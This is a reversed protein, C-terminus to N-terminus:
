RAKPPVVAVARGPTLYHAGSTIVEQVGLLDEAAVVFSSDLLRLVRLERPQARAEGDLTYITVRQGEGEVLADMPLQYYPPQRSPYLKVRGVFGIRLDRPGPALTVEVEFTGTRPDAAAAIETVTATFPADPYADLQVTASDGLALHLVDRDSVGVRLVYSNRHEGILEYVPTGPGVLEGPEALRKAIRGSLPATIRAYRQNFHAIELDSEAVELATALNQVTEYTAASDAYLHQARQLDRRLKDRGQTAQRVQADIETANLTALLAGRRVTQGERVYMRDVIGGIKFSLRAEEKAAVTGGAAVPLPPAAPPLPITRVPVAATPDTPSPSQGSYDTKCGALLLATLLITLTRM